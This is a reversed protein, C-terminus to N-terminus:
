NKYIFRSLVIVLMVFFLTKGIQSLMDVKTEFIYHTIFLSGFIAINISILPKSFQSFKLFKYVIFSKISNSVITSICISCACGFLGYKKILFIGLTTSLFIQTLSVFIEWKYYKSYHLIVGNLGTSAEFWKGLGIIYFLTVVETFNQPILNIIFNINISIIGFSMGALFSLQWSTKKYYQNIDNLKNTQFLNSVKPLATHYLSRLPIQIMSAIYIAMKISAIASLDLFKSLIITDIELIISYLGIGLFSIITFRGIEKNLTPLSFQIQPALTTLKWFILFLFNIIYVSAIYYPFYNRPIIQLAMAIITIILLLRLVIDRLFLPFVPKQWSRFLTFIAEFYSFSVITFLLSLKLSFNFKVFILFFLSFIISCMFVLFILFFSLKNAQEPDDKKYFKLYSLPFSFLIFTSFFAAYSQFLGITGIETKTLFKPFVFVQAVGGLAIGIYSILLNKFEKKQTLSSFKQIISIKSTPM